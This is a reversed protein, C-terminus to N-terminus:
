KNDANKLTSPKKPQYIYNMSATGNAVKVMSKSASAVISRLVKKKNTM